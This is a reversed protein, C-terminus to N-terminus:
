AARVFELFKDVETRLRDSEMSLSRASALVQLSASGTETAGRNVDAINFAVERSGQAARDVNHAIERTSADQEAMAVSILDTIESVRGITTGIDRIAAAAEATATQMSNIQAAIEGTAKSTQSALAKVEQAVVAFGKGANGARAAEITANLALLNTQSAIATIFQVVDGIHNAAQLLEAILTDTKQAQQVAAGAIKRLEQVQRGVENVSCSLENASSSVSQVHTSAEESAGAVLGTLEQSLEASKTLMTAASELQMSASAVARVIGGVAVEFGEALSHMEARRSAAAASAAAEKEASDHSAREIAKAKFTEVARAMQGIEDKRDLDALVVDFNGVALRNLGQVIERLPNVVKRRAMWLSVGGGLVVILLAALTLRWAWASSRRLNARAAEATAEVNSAIADLLVVATDTHAQFPGNVLELATTQSFSRTAAVIEETTKAIADRTQRIQKVMEPSVIRSNASLAIIADEVAANVTAINSVHSDVKAQDLEAPLRTVLGNEKEIMVRIDALRRATALATDVDAEVQGVTSVLTAGLIGAVAIAPVAIAALAM